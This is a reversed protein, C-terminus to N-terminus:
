VNYKLTYTHDQTLTHNQLVRTKNLFHLIFPPKKFIRSKELRKDM